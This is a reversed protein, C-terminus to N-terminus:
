KPEADLAKKKSILSWVYTGVIAAIGVIVGTASDVLAGVAAPDVVGKLVLWGAVGQLAGRVLTGLIDKFEM